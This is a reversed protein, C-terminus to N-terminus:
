KTGAPTAPVKNRQQALQLRARETDILLKEKAAAIEALALEQKAVALEMDMQVKQMKARFDAKVFEQEEPTPPPPGKQEPAAPPPPQIAQLVDVLPLGFKYRQCVAILIQKAAEIGSPGLGALPQLGALLQGMANMFESVEAKDQSTDLDITSATQINITFTRDMDSNIKGLIEEMSPSQLTEQMKPDVPQGNMQSYQLAQQAVAKEQETPIPLQVLKQWVEPPVNAAGCDVALRFL